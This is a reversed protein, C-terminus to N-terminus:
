AGVSIILHAVSPDVTFGGTAMFHDLSDSDPIVLAIRGQIGSTDDGAVEEPDQGPLAVKELRAAYGWYDDDVIVDGDGFEDISQRLIECFESIKM